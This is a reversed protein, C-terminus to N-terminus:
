PLGHWASDVLDPDSLVPCNNQQSIRRAIRRRLAHIRHRHVLWIDSLSALLRAPAYVGTSFTRGFVARADDHVLIAGLAARGGNIRDVANAGVAAGVYVLSCVSYGLRNTPQATQLFDRDDALGTVMERM